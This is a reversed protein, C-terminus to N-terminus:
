THKDVPVCIKLFIYLYKEFQDFYFHFIKGYCLILKQELLKKTSCFMKWM